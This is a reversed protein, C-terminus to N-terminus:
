QTVPVFGRESGAEDHIVICLRLIWTWLGLLLLAIPMMLWGALDHYVSKALWPIDLQYLIATTIIRIVNAALAIPIAALVIALRDWWLRKPQCLAVAVSLAFFTVLIKMGSCAAVVDLTQDGIHIKTGICSAYFGLTELMYTSSLSAVRQLPFALLTAVRFPLPIMFLLFLVPGSVHWTAQPGFVLMVVGLLCPVISAALLWDIYLYVGAFRIALGVLLLVLGLLPAGQDAEDIAHRRSWILGLAFLPVFYGHTQDPDTRWLKELGMLTPSYVWALAALLALCATWQLFTTQRAKPPVQSEDDPNTILISM